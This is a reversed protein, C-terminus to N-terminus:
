LVLEAIAVAAAAEIVPIARPIICPDHRGNIILKDNEGTELNVTNQEKGISPTPKVACRFVIPMGNTIGGLIGGCNNTRTKVVGNEDYHFEDNNESGLMTAVGFGAGFEIGKIAPVGYVASSILNEVGGFMPDGLGAPVGTVACEIIGGVSDAQLRASEVVEYMQSKAEDSIVSFYEKNLKNLLENSVNVMDFKEDNASGIAQAHAGITIGKRELIQRLVAGAFVLPATLRGSFHGGGRIDNAQNYRLWATYDSHGPRPRIKLNSYDKSRQNTNYIVACLPAGTLVGDLLGSLVHPEDAEKRQTATKDQGPARRAMQVLVSDMDIKEGAPLGEINVGIAETHSGGFISIKIKNGWSSSM